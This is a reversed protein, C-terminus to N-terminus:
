YFLWGRLGLVYGRSGRDAYHVFLPGGKVHERDAVVNSTAQVHRLHGDVLIQGGTLRYTGWHRDVWGCLASTGLGTRKTVQLERWWHHTDRGDFDRCRKAHDEWYWDVAGEFPASQASLGSEGYGVCWGYQHYSFGACEAGPGAGPYANMHFHVKHWSPEYATRGEGPASAAEAATAGLLPLLLGILVALIRTM